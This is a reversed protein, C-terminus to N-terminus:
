LLWTTLIVNLRIVICNVKQKKKSKKRLVLRGNWRAHFLYPWDKTKSQGESAGPDRPGEEGRKGHRSQRWRISSPSSSRTGQSVMRRLSIARLSKTRWHSSKRYFTVKTFKPDGADICSSYHTESETGSALLPAFYFCCYSYRRSHCSERLSFRRIM